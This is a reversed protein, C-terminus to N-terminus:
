YLHFFVPLWGAAHLMELGGFAPVALLFLSTDLFTQMVLGPRVEIKQEDRWGSFRPLFRPVRNMYDRYEQAYAALLYREEQRVVAMFVVSVILLGLLAFTVGGFQLGIGITGVLTFGYLPNRALSYPGSQVLVTRKRGAIYLACWGRGLIAVLILVIGSDEIIEHFAPSFTLVPQSVAALLFILVIGVFLARKRIRQVKQINVATHVGCRRYGKLLGGCQRARERYWVHDPRNM